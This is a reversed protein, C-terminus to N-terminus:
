EQKQGKQEKYKQNFEEFENYVLNLIFRANNYKRAVAKGDDILKKWFENSDQLNNIYKQHYAWIDCYMQWYISHKMNM